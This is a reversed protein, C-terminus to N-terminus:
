FKTCSVDWEKTTKSTQTLQRAAAFNEEEEKELTRHRANSISRGNGLLPPCFNIKGFHRGKRRNEGFATLYSYLLSFPKLTKRKQRGKRTVRKKEFFDLCHFFQQSRSLARKGKKNSTSKSRPQQQEWRNKERQCFHNLAPM